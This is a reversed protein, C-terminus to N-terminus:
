QACFWSLYLWFRKGPRPCSVSTGAAVTFAVWVGVALRLAPADSGDPPFPQGAESPLTTSTNVNLISTLLPSDIGGEGPYPLRSCPLPVPLLSWVWVANGWKCLWGVVWKSVIRMRNTSSSQRLLFISSQSSAPFYCCGPLHWLQLSCGHCETPLTHRMPFGWSNPQTRALNWRSIARHGKTKNKKTAM